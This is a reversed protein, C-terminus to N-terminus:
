WWCLGFEFLSYGLNATCCGCARKNPNVDCSLVRTEECIFLQIVGSVTYRFKFPCPAPVGDCWFREEVHLGGAYDPPCSRGNRATKPFMALLEIYGVHTYIFSENIHCSIEFDTQM